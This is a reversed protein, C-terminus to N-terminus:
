EPYYTLKEIASLVGFEAAENLYFHLASKLEESFVYQFRDFYLHLDYIIEPYKEAAKAIVEGKEHSFASLSKQYSDIVSGIIDPFKEYAKKAIVFVGFVAPFGTRRHWLDGIDYTYRVPAEPRVMADNGIILAADVRGLDPATGIQIYEPEAGYFKRLLIKLMGVTTASARSLGITRNGLEEIPHKSYLLVSGVYGVSSLCFHPLLLTDSAIDALAAASVASMGLQGDRAMRNLDGPIASVIEVGELPERELMHYYLPYCNLYDIYGLKMDSNGKVPFVGPSLM